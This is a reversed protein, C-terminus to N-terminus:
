AQETAKKLASELRAVSLEFPQTEGPGPKSSLEVPFPTVRARIQLDLFFSGYYPSPILLGEGEDALTYALTDVIPTCGNSVILNEPIMPEVPKMYYNLFDAITERFSDLGNSPFYQTHEQLIAYSAKEEFKDKLLDFALTNESVAMNIIGEPNTKHFPNERPKGSISAEHNFYQPM